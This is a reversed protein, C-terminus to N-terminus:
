GTFESAPIGQVGVDVCFLGGALPDTEQGIQASTVYLQDLRPGGFACSTIQPTPFHVTALCQGTLPNWRTVRAGGWHAVWLMGDADLTSGDPYGMEKPITFAVRRQGINGTDLDFDFADVRGLGTDIYYMTQHDLSWVIGNSCSVETVKREVHLDPYLCYLSGIPAPGAVPMTGAWFRGAPDCKGDNFRLAPQNNEPDCIETLKQTTFDYAAFGGHQALLVGGRQRPVITGVFQGIAFDEHRGAAPDSRWFKKGLIDVWYLVQLRSDWLAGEGLQAHSNFILDPAMPMTM